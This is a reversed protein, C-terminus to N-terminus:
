TGKGHRRDEAEVFFLFQEMWDGETLEGPFIEKPEGEEWMEKFASLKRKMDQVFGDLTM